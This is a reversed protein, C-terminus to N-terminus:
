NAINRVEWIKEQLSLENFRDKHIAVALLHTPRSFGVYVMKSAQVSHAKNSDSFNKGSFSDKLRESEYKGQYFTELYLTAANTKGKVSHVTGIEIDIGDYSFINSKLGNLEIQLNSQKIAFFDSNVIDTKESFLQLLETEIFNRIKSLPSEKKIIDCVWAFLNRNFSDEFNQGNSKIKEIFSTRTYYRSDNTLINENRLFKLFANIIRSRIKNVNVVENMEDASFLYDNFTDFDKKNSLDQEQYNNFYSTITIGKDNSKRWGIAVYKNDTSNIMAGSAFFTKILKAYEEIVSSISNDDYVIIHPKITSSHNGKIEIPAIAFKTVIGAVNSSLRHSGEIKLVRDRNVWHNNNSDNEFIAQNNDGIRQFISNATGNNYFLKELVTYQHQAMDQMEDVFVMKFRNQLLAACLENSAIYKQALSFATEYRVFGAKDRNIVFNLLGKYTAKTKDKLEFSESTGGIIRLDKNEDIELNSLFNQPSHKRNLWSILGFNKSMNLFKLIYDDCIENDIRNPKVGNKNSYYPICLFKDVFSQITGVYNPYKFLNKCHKGIKGKIEDVAVNTHSIVLIGSGNNFPLYRDLILLKALLATTKGSGPVAQLDITELNKIFDRREKDFSCKLISEAYLIDDATINIASM